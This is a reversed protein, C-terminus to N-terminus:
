FEGLSTEDEQYVLFEFGEPHTTQFYFSKFVQFDPLESGIHTCNDSTFHILNQEQDNLTVSISRHGHLTKWTIQQTNNLRLLNSKTCQPVECSILIEKRSFFIDGDIKLFKKDEIEETGQAWIEFVLKAKENESAHKTKFHIGHFSTSLKFSTRSGITRWHGTYLKQLSFILNFKHLNM